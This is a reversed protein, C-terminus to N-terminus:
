GITMFWAPRMRGGRRRVPDIPQIAPKPCAPEATRGNMVPVIADFVPILPKCGSYTGM